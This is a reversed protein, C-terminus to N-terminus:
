QSLLFLIEQNDIIPHTDVLKGVSAKLALSHFKHVKAKMGSWRLWRDVIILLQQCSSPSNAILCTDDAYQLLNVSLSKSLHCGLHPKTKITGVMTNIVSNFIVVSLPGGPVGRNKTPNSSHGMTCLDRHCLPQLLFSRGNKLFHHHHMIGSSSITFLYKVSLIDSCVLNQEGM